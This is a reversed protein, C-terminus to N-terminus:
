SCARRRASAQHPAAQLIWGIHAADFPPACYDAAGADMADLWESIEPRASVVVVPVTGELLARYSGPEAPCFVLDIGLREIAQRCEAVPIAPLAHVPQRLLGLALKLESNLSDGLGLLLVTRSHL